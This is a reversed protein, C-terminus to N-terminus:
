PPLKPPTVAEPIVATGVGTFIGPDVTLPGPDQSPAPSPIQPSSKTSGKHTQSRLKASRSSPIPPPDKPLPIDIMQIPPDLIIRGPLDM